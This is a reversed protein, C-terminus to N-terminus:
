GRERERERERKMEVEAKEERHSRQTDVGVEGSIHDLDGAEGTKGPVWPPIAPQTHTRTSPPPQKSGRGPLSADSRHRHEPGQRGGNSIVIHPVKQSGAQVGSISTVRRHM